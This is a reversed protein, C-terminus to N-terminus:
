GADRGPERSVTVAMEEAYAARRRAEGGGWNHPAMEAGTSKCPRTSPLNAARGVPWEDSYAGATAEIEEQGTDADVLQPKVRMRNGGVYVSGGPYLRREVRPRGAQSRGGEKQVYLSHEARDGVNRAHALPQHDLKRHRWRRDEPLGANREIACRVAAVVSRFEIVRGDGVRKVVRENHGPIAPVILASRLTRLRALIRDEDVRALRSYEVIDAILIAAIKRTGSHRARVGRLIACSLL